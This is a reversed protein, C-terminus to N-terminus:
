HYLIRRGICSVYSVCNQDWPRSSGESSPMAVWELIRVQLIGGWLCLLRSPQLGHSQLSDPTVLHNLRNLLQLLQKPASMSAVRLHPGVRWGQIGERLLAPIFWSWSSSTFKLFSSQSFTQLCFLFLDLLPSPSGQHSLHYLIQRCHLLHPNSGQTPFIGRSFPIAVRELMRAQLIGRVFSGSPSYDKPNRLTLCSQTVWVCVCVCVCVCM